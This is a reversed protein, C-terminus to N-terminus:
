PRIRVGSKKSIPQGTGRVIVQASVTPKYGSVLNRPTLSARIRNVGSRVKWVFRVSNKGPRLPMSAIRRWAVDYRSLEVSRVANAPSVWATAPISSGPRARRQSVLITLRPRVYVTVNVSGLEGDLVRARYTAGISPKLPVSYSGDPAPTIAAFDLWGRDGTRKRQIVVPFAPLSTQGRLTVSQGYVLSTPGSLTVSGTRTVMIDGSHNKPGQQQYRSRGSRTLVYAFATGPAISPSKLGLRSSQIVHATGDANTFIVTDGLNATMTAPQPGTATLQVAFEAAAGFGAAGLLALAFAAPVVARTRL